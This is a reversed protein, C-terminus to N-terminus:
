VVSRIMGGDVRLAAGNIAGARDSAIFTVFDAIEQPKTLRQILSTSRYRAMFASQAQDSALDPFLGQIFDLLGSTAVPGPLVSNVTVNTSKTLEALNRSLSIQMTKTASYHAMEPAPNVACESAIFLIRGTNRELMRKLYHRALRIGSMVNVEILHQWQQDSTDFFHTAEYIGLNNVLIEVDPVAAIARECGDATGLDAVLADLEANPAKERIRAMAESVSASTRGNLTVVAGEESLAQAIAEGIGGTSASVLARKGTLGFDM